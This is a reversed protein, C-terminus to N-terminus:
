HNPVKGSRKGHMQIYVHVYVFTYSKRGKTFSIPNHMNNPLKIKGKIVHM